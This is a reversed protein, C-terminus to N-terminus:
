RMFSRLAGTVAFIAMLVSIIRQLIFLTISDSAIELSRNPCTCCAMPDDLTGRREWHACHWQEVRGEEPYRRKHKCTSGLEGVYLRSGEHERRRQLCNLVEALLHLTALTLIFGVILM